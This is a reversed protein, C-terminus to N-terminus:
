VPREESPPAHVGASEEAPLTEVASVVGPGSVVHNNNNNNNNNNDDDNQDNNRDDWKTEPQSEKTLSVFLGQCTSRSGTGGSRQDPKEPHVPFGWLDDVSPGARFGSGPLTWIM